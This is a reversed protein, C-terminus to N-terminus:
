RGTAIAIPGRNEFYIIEEFKFPDLGFIGDNITFQNYDFERTSFHKTISVITLARATSELFNYYLGYM